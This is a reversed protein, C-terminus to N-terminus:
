FLKLNQASSLLLFLSNGFVAMRVCACAGDGENDFMKGVLTPYKNCSIFRCQCMKIIESGCINHNGRPRYMRHTQVLTHHCTDMM